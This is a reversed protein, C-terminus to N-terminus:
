REPHFAPPPVADRLWREGDFITFPPHADGILSLHSVLGGAEGLWLHLLCAPPEMVTALRRAPPLDLAIQHATAPCTCAVTGAFRRVISRHLHGCTIREVQPHERIVAALAERGDLGMGDMAAMGTAFPPHHMFILTPREPAEALRARLWALREACLRGGSEGPVLTDLAVLRLPWDEVTYQLFDGGDRLYRHDAFAAALNRRDDHNGPILFLPMALPALIERLREYEAAGGSEVLDGTALALAPRPCLANLHAVARTLHEPTRFVRDNRSGPTSIHTDSIQAILM